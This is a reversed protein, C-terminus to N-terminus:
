PWHRVLRYYGSSNTAANDAVTLVGTGNTTFLTTWAPADLTRKREVSYTAGPQACFEFSFTNNARAANQMVIWPNSIQYFAANDTINSDVITVWGADATDWRIISPSSNTEFGPHRKVVYNLPNPAWFQFAFTSGTRVPNVLQVSGACPEGGFPGGGPIRGTFRAPSSFLAAEDLALQPEVPNFAGDVWGSPFGVMPGIYTYPEDYAQTARNWRSLTTDVPYSVPCPGNICLCCCQQPLVSVTFGSAFDLCSNPAWLEGAFSIQAPTPLWLFGGDPLLLQAANDTWGTVSDYHNTPGFSQTARNWPLFFSGSPVGRFLSALTNNTSFFPNAVLNSGAVLNADFYAVLNMSYVPQALARCSLLFMLFSVLVIPHRNSSPAHKM